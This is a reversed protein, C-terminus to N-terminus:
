PIAALGAIVAILVAAIGAVRLSLAVARRDALVAAYFAAGSAVWPCLGLVLAPASIVVTWWGDELPTGVGFIVGTYAPVAGVILLLVGLGAAAARQGDTLEDGPSM